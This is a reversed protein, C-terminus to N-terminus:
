GRRKLAAWPAKLVSMTPKRPSKSDMGEERVLNIVETWCRIASDMGFFLGDEHNGHAWPSVHDITVGVPLAQIKAFDILFVGASPGHADAVFLLSSGVFEHSKVFPSVEMQQKMDKLEVLILEAVHARINATAPGEEDVVAEAVEAKPVPLFHKVICMAVDPISRAARLEEQPAQAGAMSHAIGDVRLGLQALSTHRDNFDMWRHKTCAGARREEETPANPDLEVMRKYLDARLKNKGVEDETYSRIGIKCDMVHPGRQFPHLLNSLRMYRRPGREDEQEEAAAKADEDVVEGCFRATFRLLPDQAAILERYNAAEAEDYVKVIYEPVGTATDSDSAFDKLINGGGHGAAQRTLSRRIQRRRQTDTPSMSTKSGPGDEDSSQRAFGSDLSLRAGMSSTARIEDELHPGHGLVKCVHAAPPQDAPPEDQLNFSVKVQRCSTVERHVADTNDASIEEDLAKDAEPAKPELTCCPFVTQGM